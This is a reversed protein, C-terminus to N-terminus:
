MSRQFSSDHVRRVRTGFPADAEFDTEEIAGLTYAQMRRSPGSPRPRSGRSRVRAHRSLYAFALARSARVHQAFSYATPIPSWM